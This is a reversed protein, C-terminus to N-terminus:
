MKINILSDKMTENIGPNKIEWLQTAKDKASQSASSSQGSKKTPALEARSAQEAQQAQAMKLAVVVRSLSRTPGSQHRVLYQELAETVARQRAPSLTSAARSFLDRIAETSQRKSAKSDFITGKNFQLADPGSAPFVVRLRGRAGGLERVAGELLGTAKESSLDKLRPDISRKVTTNSAPGTM